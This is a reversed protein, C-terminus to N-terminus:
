RLIKIIGLLAEPKHDPDKFRFLYQELRSDVSPKEKDVKEARVLQNLDYVLLLDVRLRYGRDLLVNEYFKQITDAGEGFHNKGISCFGAQFDPKYPEFSEHEVGKRNPDYKDTGKELIVQVLQDLTFQPHDILGLARVAVDRGMFNEELADDIKQGVAKYNPQSEVSYEPVDLSIVLASMIKADLNLQAEHFRV